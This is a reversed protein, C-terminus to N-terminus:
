RGLMNLLKHFFAMKSPIRQALEKRQGYRKLIEAVLRIMRLKAHEHIGQVFGGPFKQVGIFTRRAFDTFEVSSSAM